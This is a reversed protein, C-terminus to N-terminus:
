AIRGIPLSRVPRGTLAFLANCVAPAVPPLGTEGIGGRALGSPVLYTEVRPMERTRVIRYRDFNDQVPRGDEFTIEGWLAATLGFCIGSEMQAVVTDPNVVQGCDVACVVRHVRVLGDYELSVEAVQAVLSGFCESIAIGQAQGDPLRRGWGAKDTLIDLLAGHRPHGELLRRRLEAPDKDGARALEDVFCEVVYPNQSHGVARWWHVPVPLEPHACTVRVNDIGYPM